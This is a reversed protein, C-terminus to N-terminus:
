NFEYLSITEGSPGKTSIVKFGNMLTSNAMIDGDFLVGKAQLDKVVEDIGIVNLGIHDIIGKVNAKVSGIDSPMLVEITCNGLRILAYNLPFFGDPETGEKEITKYVTEFGLINCYFHLSEEMNRTYICLHHMGTIEGM